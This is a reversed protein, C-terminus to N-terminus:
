QGRTLNYGVSYTTSNANGVTVVIRFTRPVPLNVISNAAATLGVGVRYVNTSVTSVTAGTILNYYKGSAPDKADVALTLSSTAVATVDLIVDLFSAGNYNVLDASTQTTTRAASALLTVAENNHLRDYNSGNFATSIANVMGSSSVVGDGLSSVLVGALNGSADKGAMYFGNAPVASGTTSNAGVTWTGSQAASIGYTALAGGNTFFLVTGANTSGAGTINLRFYRFNLPGTWLGAGTTATATAATAVGEQSLNISNWTANDNSGQFTITGSTYATIHVSIWKYNGADTSVAAAPASVSWTSSLYTGAILQANQGAATGDSKLVNATNTGDNVGVAQVGTAVSRTRDWTTGNFTYPYTPQTIRNFSEDTYVSPSNTAGDAQATGASPQEVLLTNGQGGSPKVAIKNTGDTVTVANTTGPTTQDIGVKGIVNTGAHLTINSKLDTDITSLSANATTQNAATAAGSPLVPTDYTPDGTLTDYIIQLTDTGTASGMTSLTIVNGTVTATSVSSDAFNYLITNTTVDTILQLRRLHVATFDTLTVTKATTNLSYNQVIQKM